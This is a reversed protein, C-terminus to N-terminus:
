AGKGTLIVLDKVLKSIGQMTILIAGIAITIKVPWYQIAWETFSVEWVSISDWAFLWGTWFLAVTFIFFFLSTIVDTIAKARNSFMLYLVDVRVHGDVRLTFAGALMYQMGFMLFMSEHAWNTPSNFVYRALVEYYYVFVAIISWYCVYEGFFSSIRDIMDTMPSHVRLTPDKGIGIDVPEVAAPEEALEKGGAEREASRRVMRPLLFADLLLLLGILVALGRTINTWKDFEANAESRAATASQLAERAGALKEAASEKGDALSKEARKVEFEAEMAYRRANSVFDRAERGYMNGLLIAIFVPVFVFGWLNKLYFRHIGIFGATLWMLYAIHLTVEKKVGTRKQHRVIFMAALPYLLLGSWYMWHPMVFTLSPM